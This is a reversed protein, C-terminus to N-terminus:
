VIAPFKITLTFHRQKYAFDLYGEHKEVIESIIMTGVGHGGGKKTTYGKKEFLNDLIENPIDTADNRVTMIYFASRKQLKMTITAQKHVTQQYHLAAEFANSLINGILVVTDDQSIPLSSIPTELEYKLAIHHHNAKRQYDHLVGSVAASEGSVVTSVDDYRGVLQDMYAKADQLSENELMYQISTIHKLYDHRDKRLQLFVEDMQERNNHALQNRNQYLYQQELIQYKAWEMAFSSLLPIICELASLQVYSVVLLGQVSTLVWM